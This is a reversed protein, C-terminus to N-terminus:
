TKSKGREKEKLFEDLTPTPPQGSPQALLAEVEDFISASMEPQPRPTPTTKPQADVAMVAVARVQAPRAKPVSTRPKGDLRRIAYAVTSPALPRGDPRTIGAEALGQVIAAWEVGRARAARIADAMAALRRSATSREPLAALVRNLQDTGAFGIKGDEENRMM